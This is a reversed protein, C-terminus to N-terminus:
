QEVSEELARHSAPASGNTATKPTVDRLRHALMVGLSLYFRSAFGPDTKLKSRLRTSPVALVVSDELASVTATPPRSDLFSVEGVVAGQDVKAITKGSVNVAFHGRLVLYLSAIPEGQKILVQGSTLSERVGVSLLWDLDQDNLEALFLLVNRM